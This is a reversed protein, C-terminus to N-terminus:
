KKIMKEIYPFLERIDYKSVDDGRKTGLCEKTFLQICNNYNPGWIINEDENKDSKKNNYLCIMKKNYANAVHVISTDPTIVLDSYKVLAIAYAFNSFQEPTVYVKNCVFKNLYKM